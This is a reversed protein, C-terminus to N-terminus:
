NSNIKDLYGQLILAAASADIMKNKGVVREAQFSTLFEPYFVTKLGFNDEVIKQFKKIDEMIKNDKGSFDKSEGLVVLSINQQKCINLFDKEFNKDNNLVILPFAIRKLSDSVSLGVRKSGFDVGLYKDNEM